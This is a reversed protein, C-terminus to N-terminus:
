DSVCICRVNMNTIVTADYLWECAEDECLADMSDIMCALIVYMWAKLTDASSCRVDMDTIVTADCMWVCAEDGRLADM